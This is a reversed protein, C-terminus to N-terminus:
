HFITIIITYREKREKVSLLLLLPKPLQLSTISKHPFFYLFFLCFAVKTELCMTEIEIMSEFILFVRQKEENVRKERRNEM